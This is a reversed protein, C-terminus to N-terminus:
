GIKEVNYMAEIQPGYKESIVKRKIKQTPTLEGTEQSWEAKILAFQRIQEVRAFQATHKDIEKRYLDLVQPNTLLESSDTFSIGKQKAWAELEPFTPVVLASLFRRKDGIIAIQEIFRSGKISNEINQPSINKGGATVIIDKIRGTIKLYGEEDIEGMDGTKFFGDPTMVEKTAEENKYYGAMVQPGKILLEGEESIKAETNKIPQGVTGPKMQWPRNFHTIPSTETLGFGELIKFGMGVFFECDDVSLPAGGSIAFRLRDMGLTKKLSSFVLKDALKYKFGTIEQDHCVKDINLKAQKTAFKFIAKKLSSADAIKALIAAHVKEYIRPVSIIITPRIEIFDDMLTNLNVAFATKAGRSLAGHFGATREFSHSLPLFSLFIDNETLLPKGTKKDVMGYLTNEVNSYLNNHTLMVGKPNGTTGSTYILTSFDDPLISNLRNVFEDEAPNAKGEALVQTLTKVGETDSGYEDFVIYEKLDPLKDRVKLVRELQDVSGALCAIAGSDTLIYEAEETSNTAYIPVDIAGISNIALAALHWEYRNDSFISIRDGKKVGKSLFYFSLSKVMENMKTWSIDTYTGGEGGKRYTAYAKEKYKAANNQFVAAICNEKFQTM